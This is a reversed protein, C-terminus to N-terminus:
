RRGIAKALAVTVNQKNPLTAIRMLDNFDGETLLRRRRRRKCKGEMDYGPRAPGVTTPPVPYTKQTPVGGVLDQGIATIAGGFVDGWDVAMNDDEDPIPIGENDVTGPDPLWSEPFPIGPVVEPRRGPYTGGENTGGQYGAPEPIFIDGQPPLQHTHSEDGEPDVPSPPEPEPGDDVQPIQTAPFLPPLYPVSDGYGPVYGVPFPSYQGYAEYGEGFTAGYIGVDGTYFAQPEGLRRRWEEDRRAQAGLAM